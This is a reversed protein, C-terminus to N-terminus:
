SPLEISRRGNQWITLGPALRLSYVCFPSLADLIQFATNVSKRMKYGLIGTLANFNPFANPSLPQASRDFRTAGAFYYFPQAVVPTNSAATFRPSNKPPGM